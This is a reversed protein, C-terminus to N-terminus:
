GDCEGINGDLIRGSKLIEQLLVVKVGAHPYPGVLKEAQDICYRLCSAFNGLNVNFSMPSQSFEHIVTTKTITRTSRSRDLM